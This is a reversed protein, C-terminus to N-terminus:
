TRSKRKLYRIILDQYPATLVNTEPSMVLEGFNRSEARFGAEPGLEVGIQVTELIKLPATTLTERNMIRELMNWYVSYRFIPFCYYFDQAIKTWNKEPTLTITKDVIGRACDVAIDEFYKLDLTDVVKHVLGIKLAEDANIRCGELMVDLAHYPGLLKTLRQTGGASPMLGLRVERSVLSTRSRTALRYQCATAFELGGDLCWGSIAAVIPKPSGEIRKMMGQWQQSLLTAEEKSKCASIMDVDVGSIFSHPKPSIVVASGVSDNNWIGEMAEVMEKKTQASWTNVESHPDNVYVVAVDGKAEWTVKRNKLHSSTSFSRGFLGSCITSTFSSLGVGKTLNTLIGTSRAPVALRTVVTLALQVAM